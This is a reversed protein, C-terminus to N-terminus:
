ASLREDTLEKAESITNSTLLLDLMVWVRGNRYINGTKKEKSPVIAPGLTYLFYAGWKGPEIEPIDTHMEDVIKWSDVHHISQLQGGYRFAIYNPPEKPWRGETSHFYHHKDNVIQRWSIKSWSPTDAGLSVVFVM